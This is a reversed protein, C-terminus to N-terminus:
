IQYTSTNIVVLREFIGILLKEKKIEKVSEQNSIHLNKMNNLNNYNVDDFFQIGGNRLFVAIKGNTLQYIGYEEDLLAIEKLMSYPELTSWIRLFCDRSISAFRNNSLNLIQIIGKKLNIRKMASSKYQLVKTIKIIGDHSSTAIINNSIEILSTFDQNHLKPITIEPKFNLYLNYIKIELSNQILALRGDSILLAKIVNTRSIYLTNICKIRSLIKKEKKEELAMPFSSYTNLENKIYQANIFLNTFLFYNPSNHIVMNYLIELIQIKNRLLKTNIISEKPLSTSDENNYLPEEKLNYIYEKEKKIELDIQKIKDQSYYDFLRRSSHYYHKMRNSECYHKDCNLCFIKLLKSHKECVDDIKLISIQKNKLKQKKFPIFNQSTIIEIHVVKSYKCPCQISIKEPQSSIFRIYPIKQCEQCLISYYNDKDSKYEQLNIKEM